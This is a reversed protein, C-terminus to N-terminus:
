LNIQSGNQYCIYKSMCKSLTLEITLDQSGIWFSGEVIFIDVEQTQFDILNGWRM